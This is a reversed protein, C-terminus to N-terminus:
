ESMSHCIAELAEQERRLSEPDAHYLRQSNQNSGYHSRYPEDYLLRSTEPNQPALSPILARPVPFKKKCVEVDSERSRLGLCSLCVGMSHLNILRLTDRCCTQQPPSAPCSLSLQLTSTPPQISHLCRLINRATGRGWRGKEFESCIRKKELQEGHFPKLVWEMMQQQVISLERAITPVRRFTESQGYPPNVRFICASLHLPWDSM